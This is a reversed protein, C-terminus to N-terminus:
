GSSASAGPADGMDGLEGLGHEILLERLRPLDSMPIVFVGNSKQPSLGLRRLVGGIWRPSVDVGYVRGFLDDFKAAIAALSLPGAVRQQIQVAGLVRQEAQTSSSVFGRADQRVFQVLRQKAEDTTAVNLLPAIIQQRRSSLGSLDLKEVERPVALQELRYALLMNRLSEAEQHFDKPLSTPIDTRLSKIGLEASLCRSELAEDQFPHRTAVIKPGFIDFARPNFEKTPSIDNRLVPFGRANGNNLIKVIEAREDSAFFDAEDIVLTGGIEDLLRFIPSITSAGSAFIPKYCLSGVALLFRSKGSGYQGRVRLYPLESFEDHLWTLLVYHAAVEEFLPDLDVYRHIFTRVAAVLDATPLPTAVASAVLVVRHTLLNNEPSLPVYDHGDLSLRDRLSTEGEHSVAFSTRRTERDHLMEVIEGHQGRLSVVARPKIPPSKHEMREGYSPREALVLLGIPRHATFVGRQQRM